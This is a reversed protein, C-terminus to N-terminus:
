EILRKTVGFMCGRKTKAAETRKKLLAPLSFEFILLVLKVVIKGSIIYM